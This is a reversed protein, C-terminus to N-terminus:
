RAAQLVSIPFAEALAVASALPVEGLATVKLDGRRRSVMSLSGQQVLTDESVGPSVQEAFLSITALGDTFVWQRLRGDPSMLAASLAFGGPLASLGGPLPLKRM